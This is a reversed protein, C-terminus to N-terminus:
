SHLQEAKRYVKIIYLPIHHLSLRVLSFFAAHMGHDNMWISLHYLFATSFSLGSLLLATMQSTTVTLFSYLQYISSGESVRERWCVCVGRFFVSTCVRGGVEELEGSFLARELRLAHRPYERLCRGAVVCCLLM